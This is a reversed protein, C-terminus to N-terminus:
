IRSFRGDLRYTSIRGCQGSYGSQGIKGTCCGGLNKCQKQEALNAAVFVGGIREAVAQGDQAKLDAVVVAAGAEALAEAIARGIGSAGGTM